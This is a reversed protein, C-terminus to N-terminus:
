TLVYLLELAAGVLFAIKLVFIFLIITAGRDGGVIEFFNGFFLVCLDHNICWLQRDFIGSGKPLGIVEVPGYLTIRLLPHLM